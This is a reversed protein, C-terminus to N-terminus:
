PLTYEILHRTIAASYQEADITASAAHPPPPDPATGFVPATALELEGELLAIGAVPEL